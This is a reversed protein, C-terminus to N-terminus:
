IQDSPNRPTAMEAKNDKKKILQADDRFPISYDSLTNQLELETDADYGVILIAFNTSKYDEYSTNNWWFHVADDISEDAHSTTM